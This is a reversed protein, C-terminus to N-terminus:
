RRPGHITPKGAIGRLDVGAVLVSVIECGTPIPKDAPNISYGVPSRLVCQDVGTAMATKKAIVEIEALTM